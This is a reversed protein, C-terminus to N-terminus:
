SFIFFDNLLSQAMIRETNRCCFCYYPFSLGGSVSWALAGQGFTPDLGDVQTAEFFRPQSPLDPRLMSIGQPACQEAKKYVSSTRIQTLLAPISM